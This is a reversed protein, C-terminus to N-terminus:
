ESARYEYTLSVLGDGVTGTRVLRLLQSGSTETFLRDGTGLVVPYVMLRLEDVLRHEMLTPVLRSSGYVVIDGDLERRLKAVENVVDGGIIAANGWRAKGITSSVVYKPMSNLRDACPGTRPLWRTALWEDTRRGLLLTSATLVEDLLVKAWAERDGASILGLWGDQSFGDEATPVRIVGDVSANESIIIRGM